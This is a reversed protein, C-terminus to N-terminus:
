GGRRTSKVLLRNTADESRMELTKGVASVVMRRMNKLEKMVADLTVEKQESDETAENEGQEQDKGDEDEDNAEM